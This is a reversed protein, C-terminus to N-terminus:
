ICIEEEPLQFGLQVKLDDFFWKLPISGCCKGFDGYELSVISYFLPVLGCNGGRSAYESKTGSEREM